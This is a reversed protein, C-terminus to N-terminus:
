RKWDGLTTDPYTSADNPQLCKRVYVASLGIGRVTYRRQDNFYPKCVPQERYSGRVFCPDAFHYSQSTPLRLPKSYQTTKPM